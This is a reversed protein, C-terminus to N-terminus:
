SGWGGIVVEGSKAKPEFILGGPRLLAGL